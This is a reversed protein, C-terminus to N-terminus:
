APLPRFLEPQPTALQRASNDAERAAEAVTERLLDRADRACRACQSAVGLERRLEHLSSCGDRVAARVAQDSIGKCLCIYM